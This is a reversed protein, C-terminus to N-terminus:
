KKLCSRLTHLSLGDGQMYCERRKHYKYDALLLSFLTSYRCSDHVSAEPEIKTYEGILACAKFMTILEPSEDNTESRGDPKAIRGCPPWEFLTSPLSPPPLQMSVTPKCISCFTLWVALNVTSDTSVTLLRMEHVMWFILSASPTEQVMEKM